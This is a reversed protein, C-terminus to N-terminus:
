TESSAHIVPIFPWIVPRSSGASPFLFWRIRSSGTTTSSSSRTKRSSRILIDVDALMGSLFGALSALRLERRSSVSGPVVAGVLGQSLPDM